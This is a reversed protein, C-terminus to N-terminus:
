QSMSVKTEETRNARDLDLLKRIDAGNGNIIRIRNDSTLKGDRIGGKRYQLTTVSQVGRKLKGCPDEPDACPPHTREWRSERQQTSSM